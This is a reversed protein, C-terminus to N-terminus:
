INVMTIESVIKVITNNNNTTTTVYTVFEIALFSPLILSACSAQVENWPKTFTQRIYRVATVLFPTWHTDEAVQHYAGEVYVYFKYM